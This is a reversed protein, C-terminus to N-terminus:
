NIKKRYTNQEARYFISLGISLLVISYLFYWSIHRSYAFWGFFAVLIPDLLGAFSLLTPSYRRLLVVYLQYGVITTIVGLMSWVIFQQGTCHPLVGSPEVFMSTILAGAGGLFLSVGNILVGEYEDVLKKTVIWGYCYSMMAMVMVLEPIFQIAKTGAEAGNTIFLIPLFGLIGFSLGMLKFRGFKENLFFWSLLATVFPSCAYILAWKHSSVYQAAMIDFVYTLYVKFLAVQFFIGIHQRKIRISKHHALYWCLLLAGCISMRSGVLFIPRILYLSHKGVIFSSAFIARLICVSLM